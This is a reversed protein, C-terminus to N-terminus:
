PSNPTCVFTLKGEGGEGEEEEALDILVESDTVFSGNLIGQALSTEVERQITRKLPRAGYASDYGKEVLWKAAADTVQLTIHKDNLRTSLKEIELHVINMLQPLELSNFHVFEDIRNLFEPRFTSKLARMTFEEKTQSDPRSADIASGINSTFIIICNSFNVVMGKADTLRGDDLLQLLVNFVDPHAKEMEDFLIVSYPRTRVAETLQGGEEFGVYGPPAGILRAVAHKEMYESMDIRIIADESDFLSQALAKCLETKGVGTPGLFVLSATPKSADTLGARARQISEAVVQCAKSQGV